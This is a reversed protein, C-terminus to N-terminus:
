NVHISMANFVLCSGTLPWLRSLTTEAYHRMADEPVSFRATFIGFAAVVDFRHRGDPAAAEPETPECFVFRQSPWRRRAEALTAASAAVGVYDVRSLLGNAELWDLLFGCGCGFDFVSIVPKDHASLVPLLGVAYRVAVDEAKPWYLGQPKPGLEVFRREITRVIAMAADAPAESRADWPSPTESSM